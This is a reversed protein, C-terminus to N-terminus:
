LQKIPHICLVSIEESKRSQFIEKAVISRNSKSGTGGEPVLSPLCNLRGDLADFEAETEAGGDGNM